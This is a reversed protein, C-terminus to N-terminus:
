QKIPCSLIYLIYWLIFNNSLHSFHNSFSPQIRNLFCALSSEERQKSRTQFCMMKQNWGCSSTERLVPEQAIALLVNEEIMTMMMLFRM